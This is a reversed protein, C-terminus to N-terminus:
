FTSSITLFFGNSAPVQRCVGGVCIIGERQRGFGLTFRTADHVFTVSGTLYHIQRDESENGYNWMDSFSFYWQPAITLEALGM